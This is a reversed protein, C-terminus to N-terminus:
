NGAPRTARAGPRVVAALSCPPRPGPRGPGPLGAPPGARDSRRGGAGLTTGHPPTARCAARGVPSVRGTSPGAVMSRVSSDVTVKGGVRQAGAGGADAEVPQRGTTVAKLSAPQGIDM